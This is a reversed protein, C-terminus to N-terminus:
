LNSKSQERNIYDLSIKIIKEIMRLNPLHEFPNYIGIKELSYWKM